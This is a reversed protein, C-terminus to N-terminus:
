NRAQSSRHSPTALGGWFFFCIFSPPLGGLPRRLTQGSPKRLVDWGGLVQNRPPPKPACVEEHHELVEIARGWNYKRVNMQQEGEGGRSADGNESDTNVERRGHSQELM